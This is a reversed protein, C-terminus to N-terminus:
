SPHIAKLAWSEAQSAWDRDEVSWGAFNEVTGIKDITKYFVKRWGTSRDRAM